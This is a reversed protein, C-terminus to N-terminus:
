VKSSDMRGCVEHLSKAMQRTLRTCMAPKHAILWELRRRLSSKPYFSLLIQWEPCMLSIFYSVACILLVYEFNCPLYRHSLILTYRESQWLTYTQGESGTNGFFFLSFLFYFYRREISSGHQCLFYESNNCNIVIFSSSFIRLHCDLRRKKGM